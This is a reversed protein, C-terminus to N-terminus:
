GNVVDALSEKCFVDQAQRLTSDTLQQGLGLAPLLQRLLPSVRVPLHVRPRVVLVRHQHQLRQNWSLTLQHPREGCIRQEDFTALFPPFFIFPCFILPWENIVYDLTQEFTVGEGKMLALITITSVKKMIKYCM